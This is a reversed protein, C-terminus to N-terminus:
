LLEEGVARALHAKGLESAVLLDYFARAPEEVLHHLLVGDVRLTDEHAAEAPSRCPGRAPTGLLPRAVLLDEGEAVAKEIGGAAPSLVATASGRGNLDSSVRTCSIM